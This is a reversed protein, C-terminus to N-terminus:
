GGGHILVLPEGQGYIEYYMKLGNVESYDSKFNISAPTATAPKHTENMSQNSKINCSTSLLFSIVICLIKQITKNQSFHQM